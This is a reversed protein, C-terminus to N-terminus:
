FKQLGEPAKQLQALKGYGGRAPDYDQRYEDRVQLLCMSCVFPELNRYLNEMVGERPTMIKGTNM